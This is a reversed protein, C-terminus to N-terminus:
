ENIGNLKDMIIPKWEHMQKNKKNTKKRETEQELERQEMEWQFAMNGTQTFLM